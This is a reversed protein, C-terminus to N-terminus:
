TGRLSEFYATTEDSSPPDVLATLLEEGIPASLERVAEVTARADYRTTRFDVNPGLLAWFAGPQGEYPMGVSGPNVVRLGGALTRDYQMHTHGCVVVDADIDALM